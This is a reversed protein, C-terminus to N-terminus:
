SKLSNSTAECMCVNLWRASAYKAAISKKKTVVLVYVCMYMHLYPKNM